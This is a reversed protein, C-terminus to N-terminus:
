FAPIAFNNQLKICKYQRIKVKFICNFQCIQLILHHAPLTKKYYDLMHISMKDFHALNYLM